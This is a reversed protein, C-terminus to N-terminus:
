HEYKRNNVKVELKGVKIELEIVQKKLDRMDLKLEAVDNKLSELHNNELENLRRALKNNNGRSVIFDILPALVKWVFLAVVGAWGAIEILQIIENEM